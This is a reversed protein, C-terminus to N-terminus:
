ASRAFSGILLLGSGLLLIGWQPLVPIDNDPLAAVTENFATMTTSGANNADGSYIATISDSGVVTLLTTTLTAVGNILQVPSGFNAGNVQFQVTGTPSNGTVTATFT